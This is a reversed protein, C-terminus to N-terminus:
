TRSISNYKPLRGIPVKYFKYFQKAERNIIGGFESSIKPMDEISMDKMGINNLFQRVKKESMKDKYRGIFIIGADLENKLQYLRGIDSNFLSLLTIMLNKDQPDSLKAATFLRKLSKYFIKDKYFEKQDDLLSKQYQKVDVKENQFFYIISVEKFTGKINLICDVKILETDDNFHKKFMDLNFDKTNFFKYKKGDKQEIKLEIFFLNHENDIRELINKFEKFTDDISLRDSAVVGIKSVLDYDSIYYQSAIASAGVLQVANQGLKLVKMVRIIEKKPYSKELVDM